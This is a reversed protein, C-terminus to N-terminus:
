GGTPRRAVLVGSQGAPMNGVLGYEPVETCGFVGYEPREPAVEVPAFGARELHAVVDPLTFTRMELTLGPGGHFVPRDFVQLTGDRTRNVVVPGDIDVIEFRHLDPYHEVTTGEYQWPVTLILAGGPRLLALAAEFAREVPPPVHELVDSCTLFDCTGLLEAPPDTLDLRPEQDYFTNSYDAREALLGAM